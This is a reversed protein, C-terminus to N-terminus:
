VSLFFSLRFFSARLYLWGAAHCPSFAIDARPRSRKNQESYSASLVLSLFACLICVRLLSDDRFASSTVMFISTGSSSIKPRESKLRTPAIRHAIFHQPLDSGPTRSKSTKQKRQHKRNVLGCKKRNRIIKDEKHWVPYISRTTTMTLDKSIHM